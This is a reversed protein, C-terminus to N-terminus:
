LFPIEDEVDSPIDMFGSNDTAPAPATKNHNQLYKPNPVAANDAKDDACFWRLEARMTTKGQYENEVKGFVGGIKKNKFQQAFKDGWETKFGNNSKEVATIFTKFSRSCNGDSDTTLIYQRGARPWKKDPRIDNQFENMFYKPQVDGAAFDFFVIIMEKGAKSETEEVKKIIMHHGGTKPPIYEGSAKTNDYNSPKKM